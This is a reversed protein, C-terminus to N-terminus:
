KRRFKETKVVWIKCRLLKDKSEARQCALAIVENVHEPIERQLLIMGLDSTNIDSLITDANLSGVVLIDPHPPSASSSSARCTVSLPLVLLYVFLLQM